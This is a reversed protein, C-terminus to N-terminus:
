EARRAITCNAYHHPSLLHEKEREDKAAYKQAIHVMAEAVTCGEREGNDDDGGYAWSKPKGELPIATFSCVGDFRIEVDEGGSKIVVVLVAKDEPVYHKNM